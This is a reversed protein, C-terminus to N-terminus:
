VSEGEDMLALHLLLQTKKWSFPTGLLRQRIYRGRACEDVVGTTAAVTYLGYVYYIIINNYGHYLIANKPHIHKILLDIIIILTTIYLVHMIIINYVM